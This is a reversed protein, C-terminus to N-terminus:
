CKSIFLRIHGVWFVSDTLMSTQLVNGVILWTSQLLPGLHIQLSVQGRKLRLNLIRAPLHQRICLDLHNSTRGVYDSGCSCTYKYIVSNIHHPLLVDKCMSVFATRTRFIVRVAASFYCRGVHHHPTRTLHNFRHVASDYYTLEYELRAIVNM